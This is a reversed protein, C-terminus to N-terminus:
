PLPELSFNSFSPCYGVCGCVPVLAVGGSEYGTLSFSDYKAGDIRATFNNGSAELEMVFDSIINAKMVDTIQNLSGFSPSLSDTYGWYFRSASNMFYMLNQDRDARYRVVVGLDGQCASLVGPSHVKVSLRYNTLTPDDLILAGTVPDKDTITITAGTGTTLWKGSYVYWPPNIGNSFDDTFPLPISPKPTNTPYPINTPFPTSSPQPSSTVTATATDAVASPAITPAEQTSPSPFAVPIPAQGQGQRMGIYYAAGGVGAIVALVGLGVLIWTRRDPGDHGNRDPDPIKPPELRVIQAQVVQPKATIQKEDYLVLAMMEPDPVPEEPPKSPAREATEKPTEKGVQVIGGALPVGYLPWEELNGYENEILAMFEGCFVQSLLRTRVTWHMSKSFGLKRYVISMLQTVRDEGYRVKDAIRRYSWGRCKWYLVTAEKRTLSKLREETSPNLM